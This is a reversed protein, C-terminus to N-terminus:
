VDKVQSYNPIVLRGDPDKLRLPLDVEFADPNLRQVARVIDNIHVGYSNALSQFVPVLKEDIDFAEVIPVAREGIMRRPRLIVDTSYRSSNLMPRYGVLGYRNLQLPLTVFTAKYSPASAVHHNEETIKQVEEQIITIEGESNIREIRDIPKPIPTERAAIRVNNPLLWGISAEYEMLGELMKQASESGKELDEKTLKTALADRYAVLDSAGHRAAIVSWAYAESMDKAQGIGLRLLTSYNFAADVHGAAAAKQYLEAAKVYNRPVGRGTQYLTALNNSADVHGLASLESFLHAAEVDDHRDYAAIADEFSDAYSISLALLLTMMVKFM